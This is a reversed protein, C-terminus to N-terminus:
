PCTPMANNGGAAGLVTVTVNGTARGNRDDSVTYSFRDAGTFGPAATYVVRDDTAIAGTGADDILVSGSGSTSTAILWVTDGDPDRDNALVNISVTAGAPIELTDAVAVPARNAAPAANDTTTSKGGGGGSCAALLLTM